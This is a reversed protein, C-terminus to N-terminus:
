EELYVKNLTLDNTASCFSNVTSLMLNSLILLFAPQGQVGVLFWVVKWNTLPRGKHSIQFYTIIHAHKSKLLVVNIMYLAIYTDAFGHLTM